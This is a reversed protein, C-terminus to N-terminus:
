LNPIPIFTQLEGPEATFGSDPTHSLDLKTLSGGCSGSIAELLADTVGRCGSIDLRELNTLKTLEMLCETSLQTSKSLSVSVLTSSAAALSRLVSM